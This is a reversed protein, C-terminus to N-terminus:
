GDNFQVSCDYRTNAALDNFEVVATNYDKINLSVTKSKPLEGGEIQTSLVITAAAGTDEGKVWIKATTATTHGIILKIMSIKKQNVRQVLRFDVLISTYHYYPDM